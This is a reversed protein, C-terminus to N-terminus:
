TYTSHLQPSFGYERSIRFARGDLSYWFDCSSGIGLSHLEKHTPSSSAEEEHLNTYESRRLFRIGGNSHLILGQYVYFIFTFFNM